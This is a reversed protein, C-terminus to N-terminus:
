RADASTEDADQALARLRRRADETDELAGLVRESAAAAAEATETENAVEDGRVRTHADVSAVTHHIAASAEKAEEIANDIHHDAAHAVEGLANRLRILRNLLETCIVDCEYRRVVPDAAALLQILAIDSLRPLFDLAREGEAIATDWREWRLENRRM